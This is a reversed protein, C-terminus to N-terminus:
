PPPPSSSKRMRGSPTSPGPIEAKEDDAIGALAVSRLIRQDRAIQLEPQAIVHLEEDHGGVDDIGRARHLVVLGIEIKRELAERLRDIRDGAIVVPEIRQFSEVRIKELGLRSARRDFRADLGIESQGAGSRPADVLEQRLGRTQAPEIADIDAALARHEEFQLRSSKASSAISVPMRRVTSSRCHAHSSRASSRLRPLNMMAITPGDWTEGAAMISGRNGFAM